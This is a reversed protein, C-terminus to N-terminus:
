GKNPIDTETQATRKERIPPKSATLLKRTLEELKAFGDPDEKSAETEFNDAMM